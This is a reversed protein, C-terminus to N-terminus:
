KSLTIPPQGLRSWKPCRRPEVTPARMHATNEIQMKRSTVRRLTLVEDSDDGDLCRISVGGARDFAATVTSSAFDTSFSIIIASRRIAM